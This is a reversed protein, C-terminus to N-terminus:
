AESIRPINGRASQTHARLNLSINSAQPLGEVQKLKLAIYGNGHTVEFTFRPLDNDSSVILSNGRAEVKSLLVERVGTGDFVSLYFGKGPNESRVLNGEAQRAVFSAPQGEASFTVEAPSAHASLTAGLLLFAIVGAKCLSLANRTKFCLSENTKSINNKLM